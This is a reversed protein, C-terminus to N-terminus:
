LYTYIKALLEIIIKIGESNKYAYKTSNLTKYQDLNKEQDLNSGCKIKLNLFQNCIFKGTAHNFPLAILENLLYQKNCIKRSCKFSPANKTIKNQNKLMITKIKKKITFIIYNPDIYWYRLKYTKKTSSKISTKKIQKFLRDEYKVLKEGYLSSITIRLYESDIDTQVAIERQSMYGIKLLTELIVIHMDSYFMYTIIKILEVVINYTNSFM